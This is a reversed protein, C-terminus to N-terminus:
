HRKEKKLTHIISLFENETLLHISHGANILQEARIQKTTKSTRNNLQDGIIVINTSSTVNGVCIGGLLRVMKAAESRVMAQLGGTFVVHQNQFSLIAARKRISKPPRERIPRNSHPSFVGITINALKLLQNVTRVQHAEIITSFLSACADASQIIPPEVSLNRSLISTCSYEIFPYPLQYADFIQKLIRLHKSADHMIILQGDIFTCLNHYSAHNALQKTSRALDFSVTLRDVFHENNCKVLEISYTENNFPADANIFLVIFNLFHGDEKCCKNYM